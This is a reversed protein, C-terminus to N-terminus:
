FVLVVDTQDLSAVIKVGAELILNLVAISHLEQVYFNIVLYQVQNCSLM